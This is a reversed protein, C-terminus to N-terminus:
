KWNIKNLTTHAPSLKSIIKNIAAEINQKLTDDVNLNHININYYKSKNTPLQFQFWETIEEVYNRYGVRMNWNLDKIEPSFISSYYLQEVDGSDLSLNYMKLDGISGVMKYGETVNLFNNLLTNEITTAGIILSNKYKYYLKAPNFKSSNVLVSDIYYNAQGSYSNFTFCFNHWGKSLTSVDYGISNPLNYNGNVTQFKWALNTNKINKYKRLYQYGTFDGGTKFNATENKSLLTELNLKLVLQGLQNIIYAQNDNSDVVVMQDYQVSSLGCVNILNTNDTNLVPNNIFNAVRNRKNIPKIIKKPKEKPPTVLIQYYDPLTLIYKYDNTSLFPVDEDLVKLKIPAQPPSPPCNTDTILPAKKFSYRFLFNGNADIKTYSDDDSLIWINNYIDCLLQNSPGVTGIVNNGKYLNSGIVQWLVSNNDVVSCNGYANLVNGNLDIEIRDTNGGASSSELYKGDKSIKIFVKSNNDYLYLNESGDIEVQDIQEIGSFKIAGKVDTGSLSIISNNVDYRVGILNDSDFVWYSMDALRQVISFNYSFSNNIENIDLDKCSCLVCEESSLTQNLLFNTKITSAENLQYNLNYITNSGNNILTLLAAISKSENFLGFGSNYYNGFIQYGNINKWDEFNLWLSATFSNEDLLINNAQFIGYNTGDLYWYNEYFNASNGFTLGNNKYISNDYLTGSNWSTINLVNSNSNKVINFDKIYEFSDENGVHYYQYLYGPNLQVSSSIDYVFNYKPDIKDNYLIHTATLAQDATYYASNYYRDYWKKNKDHKSGYLWSCLFKNDKNHPPKLLNDLEPIESFSNLKSSFIRDSNYPYNGSSAGSEILGSNQLSIPNTTPSVYFDTLENTKFKLIISDFQYNLYIRNLGKNQNTGSYIKYYIRNKSGYTYESTQYNKLGHFYFDYTNDDKLNEYPFISLYNQKYDENNVITKLVNENLIPNADYKVTFSDVISDYDYNKYNYSNLYLFMSDPLISNKDLSINKLRLINNTERIVAQNYNTKYGFLIIINNSLIYDWKQLNSLPISRQQFTLGNTSESGGNTLIQGYYNEVYVYSDEFHFTLEDQIIFPKGTIKLGTLGQQFFTLKYPGSQDNSIVTKIYKLNNTKSPYAKEKIINKNNKLDTLFIGSKNNFSFDNINNLFDYLNFSMGNSFTFPKKNLSFQDGVINFDVPNWYISSINYNNLTLM